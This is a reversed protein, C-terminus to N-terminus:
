VKPEDQRGRVEGLLTTALFAGMKVWKSCFEVKIPTPPSPDSTKTIDCSLDWCKQGGNYNIYLCSKKVTAKLCHNTKQLLTLSYGWWSFTYTCSMNPINFIEKLDTTRGMGSSVQPESMQRSARKCKYGDTLEMRKGARLKLAGVAGGVKKSLNIHTKPKVQMHEKIHLNATM